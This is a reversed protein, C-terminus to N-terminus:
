NEKEQEILAAIGASAYGEKFAEEKVEALWREFSRSIEIALPTGLQDEREGRYMLQTGRYSESVMLLTAVEPVPADRYTQITITSVESVPEDRIIETM